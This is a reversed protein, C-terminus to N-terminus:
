AIWAQIQQAFSTGQEILSPSTNAMGLVHERDMLEAGASVDPQTEIWAVTQFIVNQSPIKVTLAFQTVGLSMLGQLENMTQDWTSMAKLPLTITGTRDCVTELHVEGQFGVKKNNVNNERAIVVQGTGWGTVPLGDILVIVEEPDYSGVVISAM